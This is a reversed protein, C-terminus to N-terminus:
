VSRRTRVILVIVAIVLVAGIIIIVWIYAPNIVKEEPPNVVISTPAPAPPITIIPAPVSTITVPPTPTTVVPIAVTFNAISSWDGEVPTLAKVRWFYTKGDELTVTLPLQAGAVNVEADYIPAAFATGESLQFQYSTTGAVPSWSFAPKLTDVNSGSAPGGISPVSAATPQVTFSRTESFASGIPTSVAVRWYYTNGPAFVPNLLNTNVIYSVPSLTSAVPIVSVIEFFNADLAIFLNYATAKSLRNWTFNVPQAAGTLASIIEIKDKDVPGILVPGNLALTDQYYQVNPGFPGIAGAVGYLMIDGPAGSSTQLANKGVNLQIGSEKYETGWFISSHTGPITPASSRFIQTAPTADASIAYLVGNTLRFGTITEAGTAAPANMSKFEGVPNSPGIECRFVNRTTTEAAFIYDGAALGTAQVLIPQFNLTGLTATWTAGSDTSYVVGGLTGGVLVKGEGLSEIDNVTNGSTLKSNVPLGWTFGGNISKYVNISNGIYIVQASEVALDAIAAPTNSRKYWRTTGGDATYFITTMPATNDFGYLVGGDSALGRLSLGTADTSYVCLVRTVAFASMRYIAAIGGGHAALYWPDGTASMYIDDATTITNDLLTFDNWVNGYDTSKSIASADGKKAGYLTAGDFKLIVTDNVVPDDVGIKKYNRATLFTPTSSLPDASRLVNNTAYAGIALNTGDTALSSIGVSSGATTSGYIKQPVASDLARWVGGIEGGANTMAAGIFAIRLSEDSGDYDPLLAIDAKNITLAAGTYVNSPYGAAVTADWKFSNFSMIHLNLQTTSNQLLIAVAMYDSAFSPSFEFAPCTSTGAPLTAFSSDTVANYWFGVGGGYNYYFVAANGASDIGYVVIYRIGGTVTPSVSIGNVTAVVTAALSQSLLVGMSTFTAGGNVSIAVAVGGAPASTAVIVVNPDDPALAVYDISALAPLRASIDAWMGGGTSTQLLKTGTVAYGTTGSFAYDLVDSGPSLVSFLSSPADLKAEWNLPDAASVPAAAIFLSSLLVVILGVGWFKKIIKKM